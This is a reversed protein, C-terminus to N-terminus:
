KAEKQFFIIDIGFIICIIAMITLTIDKESLTNEVGIENATTNKERESKEQTAIEESSMKSNYMTIKEDKDKIKFTTPEENIKYKDPAKTETITYTGKKLKLVVHETADTTWESIVNGSKDKLVLDAGVLYDNSAQDLLKIRANYETVKEVIKEKSKKNTSKIENDSKFLNKMVLIIGIIVLALGGYKILTRLM